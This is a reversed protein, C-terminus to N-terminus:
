VLPLLSSFDNEIQMMDLYLSVMGRHHTQHNFFHLISGGVNKTVTEANMNKFSLTTALENETLEDMLMILKSDLEERKSLYDAKDEFPQSGYTLTRDFLPGQLFQFVRFQGFRKLWTHDSIYIHGCLQPITRFYGTFERNWQAESLNRIVNNMKQNAVQNYRALLKCTRSDM